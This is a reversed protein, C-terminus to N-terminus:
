VVVLVLEDADCCVAEEPEVVAVVVAEEPM